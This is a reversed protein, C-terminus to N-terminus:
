VPPRVGRHPGATDFSGGSINICFQKFVPVFSLFNIVLKIQETPSTNALRNRVSSPLLSSVIWLRRRCFLTFHQRKLKSAFITLTNNLKKITLIFYCSCTRKYM